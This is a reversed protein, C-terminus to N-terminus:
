SGASTVVRLREIADVLDVRVGALVSVRQPDPVEAPLEATGTRMRRYTALASRAVLPYLWTTFASRGEFGHIGSSVAIM